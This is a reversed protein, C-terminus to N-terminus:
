QSAASESAIGAVSASSENESITVEPTPTVSIQLSDGSSQSTQIDEGSGFAHWDFGVDADQSDSLFITFGAQSTSVWYNGKINSTPTITVIPEKDYGSVFAVYVTKSGTRIVAKGVNNSSVNLKGNVTIGQEFTVTEKFIVHSLFTVSNEFITHAKVVVNHLITILSNTISIHAELDSKKVIDASQKAINEELVKADNTQQTMLSQLPSQVADSALSIDEGTALNTKYILKEGSLQEVLRIAKAMDVNVALGGKQSYYSWALSESPGTPILSFNHPSLNTANGDEDRVFLESTSTGDTDDYDIAYLQIGDTISTSPATGNGIALIKTGGSGFSTTGVGLNGSNLTFSATDLLLTAAGSRRLVVDQASSGDGWKLKGDSTGLWRGQTDGNIQVRFAESDSASRQVRFAGNTGVFFQDGTTNGYKTFSTDTGYGGMSLSGTSSVVFRDISM